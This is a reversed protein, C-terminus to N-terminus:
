DQRQRTVDGDPRYKALSIIVYDALIALVQEDQKGFPFSTSQRDVSLLGAVRQLALLPVQLLAKAAQGTQLVVPSGPPAHLRVRTGETLVASLRADGAERPFSHGTHITKGCAAVVHLQESDADLLSLACTEARTAYLGAEVVRQFFQDREQGTIMARGVAHIMQLQRAHMELRTALQEKDRKLRGVTLAREISSLVEETTFPKVLYGLAGLRLADSAVGESGYGTMMITPISLDQKELAELVELGTTDPLELDLLILDPRMQEALALGDQGSTASVARYGSYPLISELLSRLETSDDIILIKSEYM